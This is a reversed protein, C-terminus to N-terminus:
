WVSIATPRTWIVMGLAPWLLVAMPHLSCGGANITLRVALLAVGCPIGQPIQGVVWLDYSNSFSNSTGALLFGGDITQKIAYCLETRIGGYTRTWLTDGLDDTRVIWFDYSGNGYSNTNGALAFGGDSTACSAYCVDQNQIGPVGYSKNWYLGPQAAASGAILICTLFIFIFRM